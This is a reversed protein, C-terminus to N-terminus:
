AVVFAEQKNCSQTEFSEPSFGYLDTVIWRKKQLLSENLEIKSPAALDPLALKLQPLHPVVSKNSPKYSFYLLNKCRLAGEDVLSEVAAHVEKHRMHGYEGNKGHTYIYDWHLPPLLSKIKEAVETISLPQLVEDDLNSIIAKAGYAECVKRFKPMRDVDDARCLSLITWDWDKNTLITGGMWITEDDPHAVIVLSKIM